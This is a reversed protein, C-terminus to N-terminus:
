PVVEPRATTSTVRLPHPCRSGLGAAMTPTPPEPLPSAQGMQSATPLSCFGTTTLPYGDSPYSRAAGVVVPEALQVPARDPRLGSPLNTVQPRRRRQVPFTRPPESQIRDHAVPVGRKVIRINDIRMEARESARGLLWFNIIRALKLGRAKVAENLDLEITVWRGNPIRYVRMVPPELVDDELALRLEVPVADCRVDVRMLDYGSWDRLAPDAKALWQFSTMLRYAEFNGRLNPYYYSLFDTQQYTPKLRQPNPPGVTAVLAREGETHTGRRCRWTWARNTAGPWEFRAAFDFGEPQELLYFWSEPGPEVERSVEDSQSLEQEEFGLIIRERTVDGPSDARASAAALIFLVASLARQILLGTSRRSESHM